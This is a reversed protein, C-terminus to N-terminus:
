VYSDSKPSTRYNVEFEKYAIFTKYCTGCEINQEGDSYEWSDGVKSGCYPCEFDDNNCTDEVEDKYSFEEVFLIKHKPSKIGCSYLKGHIEKVDFEEEVTTIEECQSYDERGFQHHKKDLVKWM